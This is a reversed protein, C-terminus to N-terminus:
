PLPQGTPNGPKLSPRNVYIYFPHRYKIEKFEIM